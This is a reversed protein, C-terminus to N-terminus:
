GARGDPQKRLGSKGQGYRIGFREEKSALPLTAVHCSGEKTQQSVALNPLNGRPLM